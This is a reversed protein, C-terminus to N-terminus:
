TASTTERRRRVSLGSMSYKAKARIAKAEDPSSLEVYDAFAARYQEETEGDRPTRWQWGRTARHFLEKPSSFDIPVIQITTM